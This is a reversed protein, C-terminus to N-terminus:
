GARAVCLACLHPKTGLHQNHTQRESPKLMLNNKPECDTRDGALQKAMAETMQLTAGAWLLLSVLKTSSLQQMASGLECRAVHFCALRLGVVDRDSPLLIQHQVSM